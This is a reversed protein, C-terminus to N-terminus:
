HGWPVRQGGRGAPPGADGWREGQLAKGVVPFLVTGLVPKRREPLLVFFLFMWASGAPLPPRVRLGVYLPAEVLCSM